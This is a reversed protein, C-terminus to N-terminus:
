TASPDAQAADWRALAEERAAIQTKTRRIWGDIVAALEPADHHRAQEMIKSLLDLDRWDIPHTSPFEADRATNCLANVVGANASERCRYDYHHLAVIRLFEAWARPISVAIRVRYEFGMFVADM